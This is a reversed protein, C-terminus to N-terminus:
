GFLANTVQFKSDVMTLIQVLRIVRSAEKTMMMDAADMVKELVDHFSNSTARVQAFIHKKDLM